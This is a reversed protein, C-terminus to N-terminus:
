DKSPLLSFRYRSSALDSMSVVVIFFFSVFLKISILLSKFATSGSSQQKALTNRDLLQKVKQSINQPIEPVYNKKRAPVIIVEAIKNKSSSRSRAQFSDLYNQQNTRKTKSYKLSVSEIPMNRFTVEKQKVQNTPSIFIKSSQFSSTINSSM